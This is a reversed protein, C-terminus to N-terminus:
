AVTAALPLPFGVPARLKAQLLRKLADVELLLTEGDRWVRALALLEDLSKAPKVARGENWFLLPFAAIVMILGVFIGKIAGGLRSLWGQSSTESVSGEGSSVSDNNNDEDAM